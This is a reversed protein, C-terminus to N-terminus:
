VMKLNSNRPQRLNFTRMVPLISSAVFMKDLRVPGNLQTKFLVEKLYGIEHYHQIIKESFLGNKGRVGVKTCDFISFSKRQM